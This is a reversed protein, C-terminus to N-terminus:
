PRDMFNVVIPFAAPMFWEGRVRYKDLITHLLKEVRYPDPSHWYALVKLECDNGIQMAKLREEPEGKGVKVRRTQTNQIVYIYDGRRQM